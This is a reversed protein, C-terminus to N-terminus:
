GRGGRSEVISWDRHVEAAGSGWVLPPPLPACRSVADGLGCRTCVVVGTEFASLHSVIGPVAGSPSLSGSGVEDIEIFSGEVVFRCDIGFFGGHM